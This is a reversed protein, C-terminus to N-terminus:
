LAGRPHMAGDRGTAQMAMRRVRRVTRLHESLVRHSSHTSGAVDRGLDFEIMARNRDSRACKAVLRVEGITLIEELNRTAGHADAAVALLFIDLIRVLRIVGVTQATM